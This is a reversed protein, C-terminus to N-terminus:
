RQEDMYAVLMNMIEPHLDPGFEYLEGENEGTKQWVRWRLERDREENLQILAKYFTRSSGEQIVGVHYEADSLPGVWRPQTTCFEYNDLDEM